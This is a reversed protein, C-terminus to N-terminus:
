WHDVWNPMLLGPKLLALEDTIEAVDAEDAEDTAGDLTDLTDLIDVWAFMGDDEAATDLPM